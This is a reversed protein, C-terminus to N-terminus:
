GEAIYYDHSQGLIKGWFRLQDINKLISFRELSKFIKYSLTEGFGVGAM